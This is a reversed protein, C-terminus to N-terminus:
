DHGKRRALEAEDIALALKLWEVKGTMLAVLELDGTLTFRALMDSFHHVLGRREAIRGALDHRTHIKETNALRVEPSLQPRQKDNASAGEPPEVQGVTPGAREMASLAVDVEDLNALRVYTEGQRLVFTPTDDGLGMDILEAGLLAARAQLTATRKAVREHTPLDLDNSVPLIAITM